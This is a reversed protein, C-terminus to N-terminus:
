QARVMADLSWVRADDLKFRVQIFKKDLMESLKVDFDHIRRSLVDVRANKYYLASNKIFFTEVMWEGVYVPSEYSFRLPTKLTLVTGSSTSKIQDLMHVEAHQCDAILVARNRQFAKTDVRLVTSSRQELVRAVHENMRRITLSADPSDVVEIPSINQRVDTILHDLRRCPTFGASHISHRILDSVWALDMSEDVFAEIQQYQLRMHIVQQVLLTIIVMSLLLSISLEVLGFGRQTM